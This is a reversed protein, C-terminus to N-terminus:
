PLLEEAEIALANITQGGRVCPPIAAALVALTEYFVAEICVTWENFLHQLQGARQSTKRAM